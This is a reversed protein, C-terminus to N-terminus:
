AFCDRPVTGDNQGASDAAVIGDGWPMPGIDFLPEDTGWYDVMMCVDVGDVIGDGNFDVFLPYPDYEEVTSIAAGGGTWGGIAYIRGNVASTALGSRATPMDAVKTWTDTVPDYAEVASARSGADGGIAYIIGDVVSSSLVYRRTPMDAKQTWIGERALSVSALGLALVSVLARVTRSHQPIAKKM